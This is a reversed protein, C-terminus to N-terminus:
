PATSMPPTDFSFGGVSGGGGGGSGGGQQENSAPSASSIVGPASGTIYVNVKQVSGLAAKLAEVTSAAGPPAGSPAEGTARRGSAPPVFAQAMSTELRRSIEEQMSSSVKGGGTAVGYLEEGLAARIGEDGLVGSSQAEEMTVLRGGKSRRERYGSLREVDQIAEPTLAALAQRRQRGGLRSVRQLEAGGAAVGAGIDGAEIRLRAEHMRRATQRTEEPPNGADQLIEQYKKEADKGLAGAALIEDKTAALSHAATNELFAVAKDRSQFALGLIDKGFIEEQQKGSAIGSDALARGMTGSWGTGQKSIWDTLRQLIEPSSQLRQMVFETQSPTVDRMAAMGSTKATRGLEETTGVAGRLGAAIDMQGLSFRGGGFTRASGIGAQVGTVMEAWGAGGVEKGQAETLYRMVSEVQEQNSGQLAEVATRSGFARGTRREIERRVVSVDGVSGVAQGFQQLLFTRGAETAAYEERGGRSMLEKAEKAGLQIRSDRNGWYEATEFMMAGIGVRFTNEYSKRTTEMQLYSESTRDTSMAAGYRELATYGSQAERSVDELTRRAGRTGRRSARAYFASVDGQQLATINATAAEVYGGTLYDVARESMNTITREISSTSRGIHQEIFQGAITSLDAAQMRRTIAAGRESDRAARQEVVQGRERIDGWSNMTAMMAQAQMPDNAGSLRQFYALSRPDNPDMTLGMSRMASQAFALGGMGGTAAMFQGRLAPEMGMWAAQGGVQQINRNAMSEIDQITMQGSMIQQAREQSIQGTRPDFAAAMMYRNRPQNSQRIAASQIQGTFAMAGEEGGMGTANFLMEESLYGARAAGGVTQLGMRATEFASAMPIRAGARIQQTASSIYQQSAQEMPIGTVMSTGILARYAQSAQPVSSFGGMQRLNSLDSTVQEVTLNLEHHLDTITRTLTRMQQRAARIDAIGKFFGGQGAMGMMGGFEGQTMQAPGTGVMGGLGGLMAGTAGTGVGFGGPFPGGAGVVDQMAGMVGLGMMTQGQARPGFPGGLAGAVAGPFGWRAAQAGPGPAGMMAPMLQAFLKAIQEIIGTINGGGAAQQAAWGVVGDAM